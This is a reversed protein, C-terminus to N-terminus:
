IGDARRNKIILSNISEIIIDKKYETNESIKYGANKDVDYLFRDLDEFDVKYGLYGDKSNSIFRLRKLYNIYVEIQVDKKVQVYSQPPEYYFAARYARTDIIQYVKPNAFRLYTSAMPLGVGDCKLMTTLVKRTEVEDLEQCKRLENIQILADDSIVPYRDVKWLTIRFIDEEKFDKGNGKLADLEDTIDSHNKPYDFPIDANGRDFTIKYSAMINKQTQMIANKYINVTQGYPNTYCKKIQTSDRKSLLFATFKNQEYRLNALVRDAFM